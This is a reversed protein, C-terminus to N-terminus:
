QIIEDARVLVSQPVSLGLARATKLNIVLEFETPQEVPLDGPKAGKLIKDVLTAARRAQDVPSAGYFMLGGVEVHERLGYVAPLRAKDALRALRTRNDIFVGDVVVVMGDARGRTMAALAGDLDNATRAELPQLQVKLARAAVEAEQLQPAGSPNAPNWLVAIRSVKPILEKLLQMQKGIIEPAMLSLGTVNGGPRGLGAVLGTAVPDVVGSMVVPISKTADLAAKVAPTSYAAIVDVKRRVLEAALGPLREYDGEAFRTEISVNRKEIYGLDQLAKRFADFIAARRPDSASGISLYGVRPERPPAQAETALPAGLIGLAVSALVALTLITALGIRRVPATPQIPPPVRWYRSTTM